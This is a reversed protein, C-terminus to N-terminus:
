SDKLFASTEATVYDIFRSKNHAYEWIKDLNKTKVEKSNKILSLILSKAYLQYDNAFHENGREEVNVVQFTLRGSQLADKFNTEIAERSYKEM